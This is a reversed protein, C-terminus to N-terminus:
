SDCAIAGKGSNEFEYEHFETHLLSEAENATADFALWAKNDTHTIREKAIGATTLWNTVISVTDQSPAFLEIVEESTYHKAYNPSQPHSSITFYALSYLQQGKAGTSSHNISM